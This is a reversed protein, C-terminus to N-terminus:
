TFISTGMRIAAEVDEWECEVDVVIEGISKLLVFQIRGDRSKKDRIMISQIDATNLSSFKIDDRFLEILRIAKVFEDASMIGASKSLYLACAIGAIVAQGHKMEHKQQVEFAHAFTHGLNLIKRLGSEKEDAEVVDGKFRVSESIVHNLVGPELKYLGSLNKEVYDFMEENTIYAYKVVEGIGCLIEEEPLTSLFRTDIMVLKPQYFAGIINKTDYFNIGTKGGVSSDVASLLTTPVQVYQVGRMYTAAIFGAVDGVIGGGIALVASNRPLNVDLLNRFVDQMADFTKNSEKSEFEYWGTVTLERVVYDIFEKHKEKVNKDVIIYINGHLNLKEIEGKLGQLINEGLLVEYSNDPLNINIRNM